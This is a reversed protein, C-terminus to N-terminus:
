LGHKRRAVVRGAQDYAVANSLDNSTYIGQASAPVKGWFMYVGVTHGGGMPVPVVGAIYPRGFLSLTVKSARPTVLGVFDVLNGLGQVEPAIGPLLPSLGPGNASPIDAPTWGPCQYDDPMGQAPTRYSAWCVDGHATAWAVTTWHRPWTSLLTLKGTVPPQTAVRTDIPTLPRSPVHQSAAGSWHFTAGRVGAAVSALAACAAVAAAAVALRQRRRIRRGRHTISALDLRVPAPDPYSLDLPCTERAPQNNV